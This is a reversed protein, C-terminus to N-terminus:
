VRISEEYNKGKLNNKYKEVKMMLEYFDCRFYWRMLFLFPYYTLLFPIGVRSIPYPALLFIGLLIFGGVIPAAFIIYSLRRYYSRRYIDKNQNIVSNSTNLLVFYDYYPLMNMDGDNINSILGTDRVLQTMQKGDYQDYTDLVADIYRTYIKRIPIVRDPKPIVNDGYKLNRTYSNMIIACGNKITIIKSSISFMNMKHIASVSFFLLGQLKENTINTGNRLIYNEFMLIKSM